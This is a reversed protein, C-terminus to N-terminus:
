VVSLLSSNHAFAPEKLIMKDDIDKVRMYDDHILIRDSEL